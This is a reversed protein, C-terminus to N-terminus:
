PWDFTEQGGRTLLARLTEEPVDNRLTRVSGDAIVASFTTRDTRAVGRRVNQMDVEWDDPQTWVAAQDPEVEVMLITKSTGDTIQGINAGVSDFFITAAGVPVQFTTKGEGALARVKPDPDAFVAPM